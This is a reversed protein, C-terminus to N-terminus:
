VGGMKKIMKDVIDKIPLRRNNQYVDIVEDFQSTLLSQEYFPVVLESVVLEDHKLKKHLRNVICRSIAEVNGTNLHFHYDPKKPLVRDTLVFGVLIVNYTDMAHIKELDLAEYCDYNKVKVGNSLTVIPKQELFYWDLKIFNILKDHYLPLYKKKM